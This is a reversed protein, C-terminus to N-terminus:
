RVKLMARVQQTPGNQFRAYYVGPPLAGSDFTVTFTGGPRIDKDVPTQIVRGLMDIIQILTHAGKTKYRITTTQAFPNPYNTILEEGASQNPDDANPNCATDSVINLSQFNQFLITQLTATPVCFWKELISAYVSRFDYQFPINDNVSAGGPISPNNGTVGPTAQKGFIFMPAAAGHDTGMSANSKIRRGFESFTLGMVRDEIKLFECDDTFAKIADSLTKLLTAHTGISTDAAEVQSSHNDFGGMGVMYIRTKLGGKVLRAVIKLQDALSNNDPYASQQPVLNAAAVIRQAFLNTQNAITRIYTLEHGMNNDPAPDLVNNILNYFSTPNTISMGMNMGPGQLTLSTLSGIQVALPDPMTENPYGEPFNPYETNLYRGAWGTNVVEESSSGSMWIDTARFHSFNPSPYGVAQVINLKGENYMSQLGTMAPHLGTQAYGNLALIKNQAIAVNSRANYYDGYTSIPIVMNLGDNGGSLQVIVLVHDTEITPNLLANLLPSNANFAKVSYGDVVAPLVAAAPITNRLFDRRKM